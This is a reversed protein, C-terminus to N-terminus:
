RMVQGKGSNLAEKLAANEEKVQKLEELISAKDAENEEKVQKLEELICTNSAETMEAILQKIMEFDGGNPKITHGSDVTSTCDHCNEEGGKPMDPAYESDADYDEEVESVEATLKDLTSNMIEVEVDDTWDPAVRQVIMFVQEDISNLFLVIVANMYIVINSLSTAYIFIASAVASLITINLIALGAFLGKWCFDVSSEYFILM